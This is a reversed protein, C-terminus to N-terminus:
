KEESGEEGGFRISKAKIEFTYLGGKEDEEVIAKIAGKVEAIRGGDKQSDLASFALGSLPIGFGSFGLRSLSPDYLFWGNLNAYKGLNLYGLIGM